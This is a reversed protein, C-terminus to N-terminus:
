AWATGRLNTVSLSKRQHFERLVLAVAGTLFLGAIFYTTEWYVNQFDIRNANVAESLLVAYILLGWTGQHRLVGIILFFVTWLAFIVPVGLAGFNVYAEAVPNYGWGSVPGSGIHADAAFTEAIPQPKTGPYLFRPLVTPFSEYYSSGNLHGTNESVASLLSFYPGGFETNEPKLWDSSFSDSVASAIGTIGSEGAALTRIYPRVQGFVAFLAYGLVILLWTRTRFRLAKPRLVSVTGATTLLAQLVLRREGQLLVIGCWLGILGYSVIQRSRQGGSEAGYCLAAISPVVFAMYPYSLMNPDGALDFREGRGLTLSALYGGFQQFQLFYLTLGIAYAFLGACFWSFSSAKETKIPRNCNRPAFVGDWLLATFLAAAAAIASACGAAVYARNSFSTPYLLVASSGLAAFRLLLVGDYLCFALAFLGLPDLGHRRFRQAATLASLAVTVIAVCIVTADSNALQLIIVALISLACLLPTLVNNM